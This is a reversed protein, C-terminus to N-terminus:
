TSSSGLPILGLPILDFPLCAESPFPCSPSPSPIGSVCDTEVIPIDFYVVEKKYLPRLLALDMECACVRKSQVLKAAVAQEEESFVENDHFFAFRVLWWPDIHTDQPFKPLLDWIANKKRAGVVAWLLPNKAAASKSQNVIDIYENRGIALLRVVDRATFNPLSDYSKERAMLDYIMDSYYAFSTVRLGRVLIDALHYPYLMLGEKAMRVVQEYYKKEDSYYQRVLGESWRLQNRLSFQIVERQWGEKSNNLGQQVKKPLREWPSHQRIYVELTDM